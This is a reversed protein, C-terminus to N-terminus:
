APDRAHELLGAVSQDLAATDREGAHSFLYFRGRDTRAFAAFLPQGGKRGSAQFLVGSVRALPIELGGRERFFGAHEIRLTGRGADFLVRRRAPFVFLAVAGASVIALGFPSRAVFPLLALLGLALWQVGAWHGEVEISGGALSRHSRSHYVRM